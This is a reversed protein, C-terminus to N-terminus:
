KEDEAMYGPHKTKMHRRLDTFNRRCCPCVGNKVRTLQGKYAARSRDAKAAREKAQKAAQEAWETRKQANQLFKEKQALEKRLKEEVTEQPYHLPHGNPCYFSKHDEKRAKCFAQELLVPVGCENCGGVNVFDFCFQLLADSM